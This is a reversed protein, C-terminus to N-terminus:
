KTHIDWRKRSRRRNVWPQFKDFYLWAAFVIIAVIVYPLASGFFAALTM